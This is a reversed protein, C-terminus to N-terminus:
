VRQQYETLTRIGTVSHAAPNGTADQGVGSVGFVEFLRRTSM